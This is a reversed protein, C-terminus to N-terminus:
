EDIRWELLTIQRKHNSGLIFCKWFFSDYQISKIKIKEINTDIVVFKGKYLPYVTYIPQKNQIGCSWFVFKFDHSNTLHHLIPELSNSYFFLFLFCLELIQSFYFIFNWFRQYENQLLSLASLILFSQSILLIIILSIKPFITKWIAQFLKQTPCEGAWM